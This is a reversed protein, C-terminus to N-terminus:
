AGAADGAAECDALQQKLDALQAAKENMGNTMEDNQEQYLEMDENMMDMTDEMAAAHADIIENTGDANDNAQTRDKYGNDYLQSMVVGALGVANAALACFWQNFGDLVLALVLTAFIPASTSVANATQDGHSEANEADKVQSKGDAKSIDTDYEIDDWDDETMMNALYHEQSKELDVEGKRFAKYIMLADDHSISAPDYTKGNYSIPSIGM